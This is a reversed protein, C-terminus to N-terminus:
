GLDSDDSFRLEGYDDNDDDSVMWLLVMVILRTM